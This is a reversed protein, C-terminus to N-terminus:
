QHGEHSVCCGIFLVFIEQSCSEPESKGRTPDDAQASAIQFTCAAMQWSGVTGQVLHKSERSHAGQASLPVGMCPMAAKFQIGERWEGALDRYRCVEQM